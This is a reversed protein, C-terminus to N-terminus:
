DYWSSIRVVKWDVARCAQLPLKLLRSEVDRWASQADPLVRSWRSARGDRRITIYQGAADVPSGGCEPARVAPSASLFDFFEERQASSVWGEVYSEGVAESNKPRVMRGDRWLAAVLGGKFKSGRGAAPYDPYQRIVIV